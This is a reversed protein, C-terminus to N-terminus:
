AMQEIFGDIASYLSNLTKQNLLIFLYGSVTADSLQFSTKVLLTKDFLNNSDSCLLTGITANHILINPIEYRATANLLEVLKGIFAGVIINGVELLVENELEQSEFGDAYGAEASLAKIASKAMDSSIIFLVEGSFSGIFVQQIVSVLEEKGIRKELEATITNYEVERVEPVNLIVQVHLMEALSASALGFSINIIEVLAERRLESLDENM